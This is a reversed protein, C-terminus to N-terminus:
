VTSPRVRNFSRAGQRAPSVTKSGNTAAYTTAVAPAIAALRALRM